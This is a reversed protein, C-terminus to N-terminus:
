EDVAVLKVKVIEYKDQDDFRERCYKGNRMKYSAHYYSTKAGTTSLYTAHCWLERTNKNVIVYQIEDELKSM